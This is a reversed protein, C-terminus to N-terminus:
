RVGRRVGAGATGKPSSNPPQTSLLRVTSLKVTRSDGEGWTVIVEVWYPLLPFNSDSIRGSQVPLPTVQLVWRIGGGLGGGVIGQQQGPVLNKETGLSALLSEAATLGRAYEDTLGAARSGGGFVRLLVGLCIALISFAV